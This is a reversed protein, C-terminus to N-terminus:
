GFESLLGCAHEASSEPLVSAKKLLACRYQKAVSIKVSDSSKITNRLIKEAFDLRRVM